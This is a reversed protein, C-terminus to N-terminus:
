SDTKIIGRCSRSGCNCKMNLGPVSEEAYNTTIEEGKKINRDAIDCFKEAHTNGECSHNVYREPAQMFIYKGNLHTVYCKKDESFKDVQEKTLKHSTNWKLVVEGKKFNRAAFVGIGHIKSIKVTVDAM